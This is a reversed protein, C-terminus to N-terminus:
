SAARRSAGDCAVVCGACAVECAPVTPVSTGGSPTVGIPGATARRVAERVRALTNTFGEREVLSAGHANVADRLTASTILTVGDIADLGETSGHTNFDVITLPRTHLDRSSLATALAEATLVPERTDLGLFATDAEAIAEHVARDTYAHVCLRTAHPATSKVFRVIDRRSEGRYAFTVHRGRDGGLANLLQRSTTSGGVIASDVVGTLGLREIAVEPFSSAFASWGTEQAIRSVSARTDEAIRRLAPTLTGAHGAMRLASALQENADTEGPLRSSLGLANTLLRRAADRGTLVCPEPAHDDTPSFFAERARAATTTVGVAPDALAYVECRQCTNLVFCGEVGREAGLSRLLDLTDPRTRAMDRLEEPTVAGPADQEDLLGPTSVGVMVLREALDDLSEHDSSWGIPELTGTAGLRHPGRRVLTALADIFSDDDNLAPVLHLTGGESREAFMEAYEMGIEELTELCDATFSIPCVVVDREGADALEELVDETSPDLWPVPGLKSQFSLSSRGEPWGMRRLVLDMSRRVHGEYPDGDKIYSTPMSHTSFLIYPDAHLLGREAIYRHLLQAQAEIYGRDDYWDNRVALSFRLGEKRLVKYLVELATETTPGAFQPYMPIVVVDTIGDDAMRRVVDRISPNAYRMAYYTRWDAGLRAALKETQRETIVKLPSGEEWWIDRYASASKAGRFTAILTSLAPTMWRVPKPLKIVFPDALFERLYRRVDANSPTDPTGLNILLAGKKPDRHCVCGPGEYACGGCPANCVDNM